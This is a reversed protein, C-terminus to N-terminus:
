TLWTQCTGERTEGERGLVSSELFLWFESIVSLNRAQIKTQCLKRGFLSLSGIMYNYRGGIRSDCRIKSLHSLEESEGMDM